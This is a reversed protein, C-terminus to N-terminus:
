MPYTQPSDFADPPYQPMGQRAEYLYPAGGEVHRRGETGLFMLGSREDYARESHWEISLAGNNSEDQTPTGLPFYIRARWGQMWGAPPLWRTQGTILNAFYVCGGSTRLSIWPANRIAGTRTNLLLVEHSADRYLATWDSNSNLTGLRMDAGLHPPAETPVSTQPEVVSSTLPGSGAPANWSALGSTTDFFCHGGTGEPVVLVNSGAPPSLPQMLARPALVNNGCAAAPHDTSVRGNADRYSYTLTSSDYGMDFMLAQPAQSRLRMVADRARVLQKLKRVFQRSLANQRYTLALHARALRARVRQLLGILRLHFAWAYWARAPLSAYKERTTARITQRAAHARSRTTPKRPKGATTPQSWLPSQLPSPQPPTPQLPTSPPSPPPSLLAQVAAVPMAVVTAGAGPGALVAVPCVSKDAPAENGALTPQPPPLTVNPTETLQPVSTRRAPRARQTRDIRAAQARDTPVAVWEGAGADWACDKQPRGQPRPHGGVALAYKVAAEIATRSSSLIGGSRSSTKAQYIIRTEGSPNVRILKVVGLYGASSRKSLHLLIGCPSVSAPVLPAPTTSADTGGCPADLAAAAWDATGMENIDSSDEDDPMCPDPARECPVRGRAAQFRAYAAAAEERTGFTGLCQRTPRNGETREREASVTFRGNDTPTVGEFGTPNARPGVSMWLPPQLTPPEALRPEPAPRSAALDAGVTWGYLQATDMSVPTAYACPINNNDPYTACASPLSSLPVEHLPAPSPPGNPPTAPPSGLPEDTPKVAATRKRAICVHKRAAATRKRAICVHKRAICVATLLAAALALAGVPGVWGVTPNAGADAGLEQQSGSYANVAIGQSLVLLPLVPVASVPSASVVIVMTSIVMVSVASHFKNFFNNFNSFATMLFNISGLNNFNSYATLSPDLYLWATKTCRISTICKPSAHEEGEPWPKGLTPTSPLLKM